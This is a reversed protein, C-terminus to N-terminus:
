KFNVGVGFRFNHDISGSLRIPNYDLQIARIDVRDSVKIDLGGGFAGALGTDSYSDALTACNTITANSCAVNTVKTRAHGVGGLVHAFPKFTGTSSNDKFQVGGLVNYLSNKTRFSLTNATAGTGTTVAFQQDRYNGSFDAKIGVYRSVNGVASVEFGHFGIRDNFFDRAANGTNTNAGTDVQNNSYGVYFEAKKYDSSTQAFAFVSTIMMLSIALLLKHM